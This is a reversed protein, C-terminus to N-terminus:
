GPHCNPLLAPEEKLPLAEDWSEWLGRSPAQPLQGRPSVHRWCSGPRRVAQQKGILCHSLPGQTEPDEESQIAHCSGLGLYRDPMIAKAVNRVKKPVHATSAPLGFFGNWKFHPQHLTSVLKPEKCSCQSNPLKTM